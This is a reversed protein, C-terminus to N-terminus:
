TVHEGPLSQGTSGGEYVDRSGVERVSATLLIAVLAAAFRRASSSSSAKNNRLPAGGRGWPEGQSVSKAAAKPLCAGVPM